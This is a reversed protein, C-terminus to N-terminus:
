LKEYKLELVRRVYKDEPKIKNMRRKIAEQDDIILNIGWGIGGDIEGTMKLDDTIILGEFSLDKELYKLYKRSISAPQSPNIQPNIIHGVMVFETNANIAMKFPIWDSKKLEEVSSDIVPFDYHSDISTRGHGPFHKPSTLIGAGQYIGVETSVIEAVDFSNNSYSRSYMFSDENAIDAVPGLVFNIGLNKLLKARYEHIKYFDPSNGNMVDRASYQAYKDWPIRVVTGGEQDVAILLDQAVKKKLDATLKKLQTESQINAGMLIVGAIHNKKLFQITKNSLKTDPISVMFLTGRKEADSMLNVERETFKQISVTKILSLTSIQTPANELKQIIQPAFFIGAINAVILLIILLRKFM